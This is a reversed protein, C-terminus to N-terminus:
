RYRVRERYLDHIMHGKLKSRTAKESKLIKLLAERFDSILYQKQYLLRHMSRVLEDSVTNWADATGVGLWAIIASRCTVIVHSDCFLAFVLKIPETIVELILYLPLICFVWFTSYFSPYTVFIQSFVYNRKKFKGNGPFTRGAIETAIDMFKNNHINKLIIIAFFCINLNSKKLNLVICCLM